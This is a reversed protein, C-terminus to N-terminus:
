FINNSFITFTKATLDLDIKVMKSQIQFHCLQITLCFHCDILWFIVIEFYTIVEM